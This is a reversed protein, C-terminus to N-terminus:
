EALLGTDGFAFAARHVHEIAFLSEKAAVGNDSSVQRDRGAHSKGDLVPFLVVDDQTEKAVAGGIFACKM